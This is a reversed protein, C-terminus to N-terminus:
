DEKKLIEEVMEIGFVQYIKKLSEYNPKTKKLETKSIGSQKIGLKEALEKQTLNYKERIEKYM